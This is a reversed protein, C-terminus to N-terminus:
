SPLPLIPIIASFSSSSPLYYPLPPFSYTGTPLSSTTFFLQYSSFSFRKTELRSYIHNLSSPSIPMWQLQFLTSEMSLFLRKPELRFYIYKSYIYVYWRRSFPDPLVRSITQFFLTEKELTVIFLKSNTCSLLM